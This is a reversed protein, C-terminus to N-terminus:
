GANNGDKNEETENEIKIQMIENSLAYAMKEAEIVDATFCNEDKDLVDSLYGEERNVCMVRCPVDPREKTFITIGFSIRRKAFLIILVIGAIALVAVGFEIIKDAAGSIIEPIVGVVSLVGVVLFLAAVVALVIIGWVCYRKASKFYSSVSEIRDVPIEVNRKTTRRKSEAFATHVLRKNTLLVTNEATMTGNVKDHMAYCDYDFSDVIREGDALVLGHKAQRAGFGTVKENEDVNM